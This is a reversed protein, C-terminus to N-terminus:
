TILLGPAELAIFLSFVVGAIVVVRIWPRDQSWPRVAGLAGVMLLPLSAVLFPLLRLGYAFALSPSEGDAQGKAYGISISAVMLWCLLGVFLVPLAWRPRKTSRPPAEWLVNPGPGTRRDQDSTM